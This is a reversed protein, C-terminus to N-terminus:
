LRAIKDYWIPTFQYKGLANTDANVATYPEKRGKTEFEIM